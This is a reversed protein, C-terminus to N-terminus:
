FSLRMGFETQRPSTAQGTIRGFTSPSTINLAPSGPAFHNFVNTFQLSTRLTVREGFKFDKTIGLDMNWIM